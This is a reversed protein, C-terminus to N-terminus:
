LIVEKRKLEEIDDPSLGLLQRFVYDNDQGLVPAARWVECPTASMRWPIGTHKRVGVVPHEKETFFRRANLHPDEAVEKNNLAPYAAVGAEQLRRTAEFPDQTLTWEEVIRELEDENAKRAERTAFRPDRALEPRGMVRCLAQWEEDSGCAISIWRDEPLLGEPLEGDRAPACRFFGHPAMVPDRNGLRPPQHGNMLYGLIADGLLAIAAEWQSLDVYQGRGTCKRYYLGAMVAFAGHWGGNPDPYSMGVHMPHEWGRYGTLTAFGSLAVLYPGYSVYNRLPGTRGHGSMSVMVIDPKVKKLEEYGLGWREVVGAAFNEIVADSMAVLRKVLEVAEPRALNLQVSRKGQNYECFYGARDYHRQGEAFPVITRTVCLRNVSEIRISEAGLHALVQGAYPGAWATTLEVVRYGSLPGKGHEAM